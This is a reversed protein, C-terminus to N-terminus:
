IEEEEISGDTVPTETPSAFGHPSTTRETPGGHRKAFYAFRPIRGFYFTDLGRPVSREARDVDDRSAMPDRSASASVDPALASPVVLLRTALRATTTAM